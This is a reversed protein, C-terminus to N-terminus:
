SKKRGKLLFLMLSVQFRNFSSDELMLYLNIKAFAQLTDHYTEFYKVVVTLQFSNQFTETEGSTLLILVIAFRSAM